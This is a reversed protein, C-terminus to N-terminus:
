LRNQQMYSYFVLQKQKYENDNYEGPASEKTMLIVNHQLLAIEINNICSYIRDM